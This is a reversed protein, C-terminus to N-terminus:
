RMLSSLRYFEWRFSFRHESSDSGRSTTAPSYRIPPMITSFLDDFAYEFSSFFPPRPSATGNRRHAAQYKKGEM